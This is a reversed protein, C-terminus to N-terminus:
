IFPRRDLVLRLPKETIFRGPFASQLEALACVTGFLMHLDNFGDHTCYDLSDLYAVYGDAFDLLAARVEDWKYPTQRSARTLCFIWDIEIFGIARGFNDRVGYDRYMSLCSDIVREPYRLPMRAYEHNFLYHFGGAMYEFLCAIPSNKSSPGCKANEVFGAKWFGTVPDANDYFWKFYVESFESTIEESCVLAAYVGAGKHSEPWPKKQWDLSDLLSYLNDKDFYKHLGVLPYLPKEDFLQLAAACHATTHITHHTQETFMGTEPDQLARIGDIRAQRTSEDCTFENISYLINAADACGYENIGLRRSGAADQWLWRCYTGRKELEHSKVTSRVGNIIKRLDYQKM